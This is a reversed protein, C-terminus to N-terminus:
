VFKSIQTTAVASDLAFIQGSFITVGGGVCVCVGGGGCGGGGGGTAGAATRDM